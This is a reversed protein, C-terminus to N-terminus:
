VISNHISFEFKLGDRQKPGEQIQENQGTKKKYHELQM